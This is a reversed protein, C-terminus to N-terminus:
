ADDVKESFYPKETALFLFTGLEEDGVGRTM